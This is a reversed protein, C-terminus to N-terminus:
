DGKVIRYPKGIVLCKSTNAHGVDKTVAIPFDRGEAIRLALAAIDPQEQREEMQTFTGLLLGSIEDFVGLHKLQTLYSAMRAAGGSYSELFLIKGQFDPMFETGALKLLCRINGGIVVGEIMSGRIFDWGIRYLDDKGHFLSNEFDATQRIRNEWVLCRVQYLCSPSQTKAYIANIITTLDSYGFFPKPKRRILAFDIHDLLENALEGGSVDFIAKIADDEYFSNLAGARQAGSGGFASHESFIYPSMM